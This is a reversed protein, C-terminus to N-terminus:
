TPVKTVTSTVNGNALNGYEALLIPDINYLTTWDPNVESPLLITVVNGVTTVGVDYIGDLNLPVDGDPHVGTSNIIRLTDGEQFHRGIGSFIIQGNISDAVEVVPSAGRATGDFGSASHDIINGAGTADTDDLIYWGICDSFFSLLSLDPPDGGGYIQVVESPTLKRNWISIHKLNGDFYADSGRAGIQFDLANTTTTGGTLNNTGINRATAVSDLYLDVGSANVSTSKTFGWHHWAGDTPAAQNSGIQLQNAGASSSIILDQTNNSSITFRWGVNSAAAQKGVVARGRPGSTRYWVFVSRETAPTMDFVDGTIIDDNSGDFNWVTEGDIFDPTYTITSTFTPNKDCEITCSVWYGDYKQQTLKPIGGVTRCLHTTPIGIDTILDMLFDDRGYRLTTVFFGMFETYETASLLWQCNVTFGPLLIDQRRRSGGGELPITIIGEM